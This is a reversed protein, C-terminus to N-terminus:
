SSDDTAPAMNPTECASMRVLGVCAQCRLLEPSAATFRWRSQVDEPWGPCNRCFHWFRRLRWVMPAVDERNAPGLKRYVRYSPM